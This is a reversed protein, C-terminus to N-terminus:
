KELIISESEIPCEVSYEPETKERQVIKCGPSLEQIPFKDAPMQFWVLVCDPKNEFSYSAYVGGGCWNGIASVKYSGFVPRLKHLVEKLKPLSHMTLFIGESMENYEFEATNEDSRLGVSELIKAAIILKDIKRNMHDRVEEFCEEVSKM